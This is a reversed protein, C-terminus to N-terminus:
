SMAEADRGTFYAATDFFFEPRSAIEKKLEQPTMQWWGSQEIKAITEDDFRMRILKAPNGGVISYPEVDSTVVAGAAVVAGRGIRTVSPLIVSGHGLWVDDGIELHEFPIKDEDVVGLNANYFYPTLGLFEVGHNRRFIHATPAVSCYRGFRTQRGIRDPDFCGYSYLGVEIQYQRVFSERLAVSTFEDAAFM